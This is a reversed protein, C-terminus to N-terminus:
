TKKIFLKRKSQQYWNITTSKYNVTCFVLFFCFVTLIYGHFCGFYWWLLLSYRQGLRVPSFCWFFVFCRRFTASLHVIDSSLALFCFVGFFFLVDVFVVLERSSVCACYIGGVIAVGYSDLFCFFCAVSIRLLQRYTCFFFRSVIGVYIKQRYKWQIENCVFM